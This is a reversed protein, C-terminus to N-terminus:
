HRTTAYHRSRISAEWIFVIMHIRSIIIRLHIRGIIIATVIHLICHQNTQKLGYVHNVFQYRYRNNHRRATLHGLEADVLLVAHSLVSQSWPCGVHRWQQTAHAFGDFATNLRQLRALMCLAHHRRCVTDTPRREHRLPPMTELGLPRSLAPPM